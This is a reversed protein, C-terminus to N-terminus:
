KAPAAAPASVGFDWIATSYTYPDPMKAEIAYEGPPLPQAPVIKLWPSNPIRTITTEVVQDFRTVKTFGRGYELAHAARVKKDVELRILQYFADPSFSSTDNGSNDKRYAQALLLSVGQLQLAAHPESIDVTAKGKTVGWTFNQGQHKNMHVGHQEILTLTPKGDVTDLVWVTGDTPLAIGPAIEAPAAQANAPYSALVVGLFLSRILTLAPSIKRM